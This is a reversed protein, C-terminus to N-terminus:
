NTENTDEQGQGITQRDSYVHMWFGGTSESELEQWEKDKSRSACEIGM